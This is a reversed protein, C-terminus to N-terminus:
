YLLGISYLSVEGKSPLLTEKVVYHDSNRGLQSKGKSPGGVEFVKGNVVYDPTRRKVGTKLYMADGVHQIFFDERIGGISPKVNYKTCMAYRYSLSM